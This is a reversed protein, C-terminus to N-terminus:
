QTHGDNKVADKHCENGIKHNSSDHHISELSSTSNLDNRVYAEPFVKGEEDLYLVCQPPASQNSNCYLQEESTNQARIPNANVKFQQIM